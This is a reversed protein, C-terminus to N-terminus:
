VNRLFQHIRKFHFVDFGPTFPTQELGRWSDLSGGRVTDGRRWTSRVVGPRHERGGTRLAAGRQGGPPKMSHTDVFCGLASVLFLVRLAAKEMPTDSFPAMWLRFFLPPGRITPYRQHGRLRFAVQGGLGAPSSSVM